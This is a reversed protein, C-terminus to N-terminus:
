ITLWFKSAKEQNPPLYTELSENARERSTSYTGTGTHLLVNIFSTSSVGFTSETDPLLNTRSFSHFSHTAHVHVGHTRLLTCSRRCEKIRPAMLFSSLSLLHALSFIVCCPRFVDFGRGLSSFPCVRNTTGNTEGPVAAALLNSTGNRANRGPSPAIPGL